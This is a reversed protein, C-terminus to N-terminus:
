PANRAAFLWVSVADAVPPGPGIKGCECHAGLLPLGLVFGSPPGAPQREEEGKGVQEISGFALSCGGLKDTVLDPGDDAIGMAALTYTRVLGDSTLPHTHVRVVVVGEIEGMHVEDVQLLRRDLRDGLATDPRLTPVVFQVHDDVRGSEIGHGARQHADVDPAPVADGQPVGPRRPRMRVKAQSDCSKRIEEGDRTRAAWRDERVHDDRYLVM